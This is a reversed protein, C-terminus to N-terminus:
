TDVIEGNFSHESITDLLTAHSFQDSKYHVTLCHHDGGKLWCRVIGQEQENSM